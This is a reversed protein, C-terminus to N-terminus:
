ICWNKNFSMFFSQPLLRSQITSTHCQPTVSCKCQIHTHHTHAITATTLTHYHTPAPLRHHCHIFLFIVPYSVSHFLIRIHLMSMDKPMRLIVNSFLHCESVDVIVMIRSHPRTYSALPRARSLREISMAWRTQLPCACVCVWQSAAWAIYSYYCILQSHNIAMGFRKHHLLARIDWTSWCLSSEMEVYNFQPM